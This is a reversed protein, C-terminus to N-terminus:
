APHISGRIVQPFDSQFFHYLLFRPLDIVRGPYQDMIAGDSTCIADSNEQKLVQDPSPVTHADGEIGMKMMEMCLEASLRGSHSVPEDLYHIYTADPWMKLVELMMSVSRSFVSKNIIRGHMEGADRLIGDNSLFLPRGLLYNNITFLVNYTDILVLDGKKVIGLKNRRLVAQEAPVVGRYLIQRMDRPLMFKDGVLKLASKQPYAKSLLWLYEEAAQFLFDPFTSSM